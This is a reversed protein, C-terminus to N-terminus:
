LATSRSAQPLVPSEYSSPLNVVGQVFVNKAIQRAPLYERSLRRLYKDPVKKLLQAFIQRSAFVKKLLQAFMQRCAFVKTLVQAFIQRAPLYERSFRRLYRDPLLYKKSFSHLYKDAPLYKKSFRRLYKDAPLYESSFSRLFKDAPLYERSFRRLYKDPLCISGQLVQAFLITNTRVIIRFFCSNSCPPRLSLNPTDYTM